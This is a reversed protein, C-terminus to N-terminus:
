DQSNVAAIMSGRTDEEEIEVSGHCSRKGRANVVSM